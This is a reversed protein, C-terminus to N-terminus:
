TLRLASRPCARVARRAYEVSEPPVDGTILPYGWPDLDVVEPLLEACLGRAACRPWDVRLRVGDGSM